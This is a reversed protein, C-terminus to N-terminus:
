AHKYAPWKLIELNWCFYGPDCWQNLLTVLVLLFADLDPMRVAVYGNATPQHFGDGIVLPMRIPEAHVDGVKGLLIIAPGVTVWGFEDGLWDFERGVERWELVIHM